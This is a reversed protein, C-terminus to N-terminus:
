EFSILDGENNTSNETMSDLFIKSFPTKQIIGDLSVNSAVEHIAEFHHRHPVM